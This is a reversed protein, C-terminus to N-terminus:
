QERRRMIEKKWQHNHCLTQLGLPFKERRLQYYFKMGGRSLRGRRGRYDKAGDNNIHDLTLMDIDIIACHKWSCQPMGNPGYHGLVEIKFLMERKRRAEKVRPQLHWLRNKERVKERNRSVYSRQYQRKREPTEFPRM